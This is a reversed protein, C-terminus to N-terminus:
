AIPTFALSLSLSLCPRLSLPFPLPLCSSFGVAHHSTNRVLVITSRTAIRGYCVRVCWLSGRAGRTWERSTGQRRFRDVTIHTERKKQRPPKPSLAREFRLVCAAAFVTSSFCPLARRQEWCPSRTFSQVALISSRQTKNNPTTNRHHCKPERPKKSPHSPAPLPRRGASRQRRNRNTDTSKSPPRTFRHIVPTLCWSGRSQTVDGGGSRFLTTGRSAPHRLQVHPPAYLLIIKTCRINTLDFM